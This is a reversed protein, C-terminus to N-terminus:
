TSISIVPSGFRRSRALLEHVVADGVAAELRDDGLRKRELLDDLGM